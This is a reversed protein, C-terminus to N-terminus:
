EDRLGDPVFKGASVLPRNDLYFDCELVVCDMHNKAPYQGYGAPGRSAGFAVIAGGNLAEWSGYDGSEVPKPPPGCRPDMGVGVHSIRRLNPDGHGDFWNVLKKAESGGEIKIVRGQEIELRVPEEIVLKLTPTSLVPGNLVITGEATEEVPFVNCYATGVSDWDGPGEVVGDQPVPTRGEYSVEFDTGLKSKLRIRTAKDFLGKAVSAKRVIADTPARELLRMETRVQLMRAGSQLIEDTASTYLWSETSIEFVMDARKMSEVATRPPEVLPPRAKAWVAVADCGLAVSAAQFLEAVERPRGSDSYIVVKEDARVQCYKLTRTIAELMEPLRLTM